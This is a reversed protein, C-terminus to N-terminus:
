GEQKGRPLGIADWVEDLVFSMRRKLINEVVEPPQFARRIFDDKVVVWGGTRYPNKPDEGPAPERASILIVGKEMLEACKPCPEYSLCCKRPAAGDNSAPVGAKHLAERASTKIHGWLIVGKDELCYFCQELGPNVGHKPDLLIDGSM